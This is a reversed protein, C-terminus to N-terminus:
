WVTKKQLMSLPGGKESLERNSSAGGSNITSM